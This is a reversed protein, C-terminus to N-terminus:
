IVLKKQNATKKSIQVSAEHYGIMIARSDAPITMIATTKTMFSLVGSRRQMRKTFYPSHFFVALYLCLNKCLTVAGGSSSEFSFWVPAMLLWQGGTQEKWLRSRKEAYVVCQLALSSRLRPSKWAPGPLRSRSCIRICFLVPVRSYQASGLKLDHSLLWFYWIYIFSQNDRLSSTLDRSRHPVLVPVFTVSSYVLQQQEHYSACWGWLPPIIHKLHFICISNLTAGDTSRM